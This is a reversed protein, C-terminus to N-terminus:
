REIPELKDQIVYHGTKRAKSAIKKFERYFNSLTFYLRESVNWINREYTIAGGRIVVGEVDVIASGNVEILATLKQKDTM